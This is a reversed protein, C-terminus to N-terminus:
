TGPELIAPAAAPPRGTMLESFIEVRAPHDVAIGHKRMVDIAHKLGEVYGLDRGLRVMDQAFTMTTM